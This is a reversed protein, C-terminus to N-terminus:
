SMSSGVAGMCLCCCCVVIFDTYIYTIGKMYDDAQLKESLKDCDYAVWFFIITAVFLAGIPHAPTEFYPVIATFVIAATLMFFDARPALM